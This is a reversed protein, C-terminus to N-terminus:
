QSVSSDKNQNSDTDFGRGNGRHKGGNRFDGMKNFSLPDAAKADIQTNMKDAQDQTIVGADKYLAVIKKEVAASKASWDLLATKQTETLTVGQLMNFGDFGDGFMRFNLNTTSLSAIAADVKTKIADAQAETILKQEVLLKALDNELSLQEKQLELLSNKQADTLKSTDIRNGKFGDFENKGHGGGIFLDGNALNKDIQAKQADAQEQTMSGNSVMKDILSKQLDAMKQAYDKVDAQQETTLKSADIGFLGRIKIAATSTSTAAFVTTPVILALAITTAILGKRLKM